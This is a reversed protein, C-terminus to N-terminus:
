GASKLLLVLAGAGGDTARAECYALVEDRHTLWKRVLLKLVPKRDRSGLGKGHVIRVCRKGRKLCEQLFAVLSERAEYRDQGHLDLQAQIVWHGRRLKRLIQRSLGPRLFPPDDGIELHDDITISLDALSALVAQDDRLTQLPIPVPKCRAHEVRGNSAIPAVDAVASLFERLEPDPQADPPSKNARAKM